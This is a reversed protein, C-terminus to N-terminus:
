QTLLRLGLMLVRTWQLRMSVPSSLTHTITSWNVFDVCKKCELIPREISLNTFKHMLCIMLNCPTRTVVTDSLFVLNMYQNWFLKYLAIPGITIVLFASNTGFQNLWPPSRSIYFPVVMGAHYAKQILIWLSLIMLGMPWLLCYRMYWVMLAQGCCQHGMCIGFRCIHYLEWKYGCEGKVKSPAPPTAITIILLANNTEWMFQTSPSELKYLFPRGKRCLAGELNSYPCFHSAWSDSYLCYRVHQVM